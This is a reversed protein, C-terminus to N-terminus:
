IIAVCDIGGIRERNLIIVMGLNDRLILVKRYTTFYDNGSEGGGFFFL